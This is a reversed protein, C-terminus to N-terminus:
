LMNQWHMLLKIESRKTHVFVYSQLMGGLIQCDSVLSHFYSAQSHKEAENLAKILKPCDSEAVMRMLCLDRALSLGLRLGICEVM